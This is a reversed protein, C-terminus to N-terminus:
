DAPKRFKFLFRDTKGRIDPSFVNLTHDDEPNALLDSQGVLVFGAREFDAIVTAPEIRHLAEVVERTDGESGVHDIIGVTGGARMAAFLGATFEDPDTKAINYSESEWYFDHYNLNMIAFDFSEPEYSFHEFQFWSQNVMPAREMLAKWIQYEREGNNFNVARLATVSGSDDTVHGLIESWYGSGPLIDATDMGPELGLFTLTEAPKRSEDLKRAAEPRDPAAVAAAIVTENGHHGASMESQADGAAALSSWSFLTACGVALLNARM